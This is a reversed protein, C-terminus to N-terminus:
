VDSFYEGSALNSTQPENFNSRFPSLYLLKTATHSRFNELRPASVARQPVVISWRVIWKNFDRRPRRRSSDRLARHQGHNFANSHRHGRRKETEQRSLFNFVQGEASSGNGLGLAVTDSQQERSHFIPCFRERERERERPAHELQLVSSAGGYHM